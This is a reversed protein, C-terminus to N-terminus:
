AQTETPVPVPPVLAVLRASTSLLMVIGTWIADPPEDAWVPLPIEYGIYPGIAIVTGAFPLVFPVNGIETAVGGGGAGGGPEYMDLKAAVSATKM